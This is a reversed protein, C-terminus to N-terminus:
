YLEFVMKDKSELEKGHNNRVLFYDTPNNRKSKRLLPFAQKVYRNSANQPTSTQIVVYRTTCFVKYGKFGGKIERTLPKIDLVRTKSDTENFTAFGCVVGKRYMILYKVSWM